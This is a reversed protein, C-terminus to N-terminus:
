NRNSTCKYARTKKTYKADTGRSNRSPEGDDSQREIIVNKELIRYAYCNHRADHYKKRIEEIIKEIDSINEVYFASAIFKSKKEIIVSKGNNEITRFM